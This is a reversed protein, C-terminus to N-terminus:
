SKLGFFTSSLVGMKWGVYEEVLFGKHVFGAVTKKTTATTATTTNKNMDSIEPDRNGVQLLLIESELLRTSGDAGNGIAEKAEASIKRM